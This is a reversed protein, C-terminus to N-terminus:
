RNRRGAHTSGHDETSPERAGDWTPDEIVSMRAVAEQTFRVRAGPTLGPASVVEVEVYDPTTDVVRYLAERELACYRLLRPVRAKGIMM